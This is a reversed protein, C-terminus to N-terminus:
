QSLSDGLDQHKGMREKWNRQEEQYKESRFQLPKSGIQFDPFVSILLIDKNNANFTIAVKDFSIVEKMSVLAQHVKEFDLPTTAAKGRPQLLLILNTGKMVGYKGFIEQLYAIIAEQTFELYESPYRKIQFRWEKKKSRITCDVHTASEINTVLDSLTSIRGRFGKNMEFCILIEDQPGFDYLNSLDLAVQIEVHETRNTFKRIAAALADNFPGTEDIQQRVMEGLSMGERTFKLAENDVLERIENEVLAYLQNRHICIMMM